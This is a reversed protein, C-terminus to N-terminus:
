NKRHKWRSAESLPPLYETLENIIQDLNDKSTVVAVNVTGKARARTFNGTLKITSNRYHFSKQYHEMLFSDCVGYLVDLPCDSKGKLFNYDLNLCM